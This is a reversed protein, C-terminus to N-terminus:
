REVFCSDSGVETLQLWDSLALCYIVFTEQLLLEVSMLSM